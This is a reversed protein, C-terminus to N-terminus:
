IQFKIRCQLFFAKESPTANDVHFSSSCGEQYTLKLEEIMGSKEKDVYISYNKSHKINCHRHLVYKKVVSSQYDCLLCTVCFVLKNYYICFFNKGYRILFNDFTNMWEKLSNLPLIIDFYILFLIQLCV